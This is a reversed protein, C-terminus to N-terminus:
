RQRSLSRADAAPARGGAVPSHVVVAKREGGKVKKGNRERVGKWWGSGAAEVASFLADSCRCGRARKGALAEVRLPPRVLQGLSHAVGNGNRSIKEVRVQNMFELLEKIEATITWCDSQDASHEMISRLVLASDTELIAPGYPLKGLQKLGHLCALLEAELASSCEPLHEWASLCVSGTESRIIVGTGGRKTSIDWAADVNVKIWGPPPPKWDSCRVLDPILPPPIPHIVAKGKVDTPIVRPHAFSEVYNVLYPVSAAVSAKGDGHVVNNRHHWARWWLFILKVRTSENSNVLLQIAWEQGTKRMVAESPLDWHKQMSSRLAQALTCNVVAHHADEEACGCITCIPLVTNIRRHVNAMVALSDTALKWAFIRM